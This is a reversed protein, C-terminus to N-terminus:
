QERAGGCAKVPQLPECLVAAGHRAVASVARCDRILDGGSPEAARSAPDTATKAIPVSILMPKNRDMEMALAVASELILAHESDGFESAAHGSQDRFKPDRM